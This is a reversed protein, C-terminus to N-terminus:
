PKPRLHCRRHSGTKVTSKTPQSQRIESRDTRQFKFLSSLSVHAANDKTQDPFGPQDILFKPSVNIKLVITPWNQIETQSREVQM